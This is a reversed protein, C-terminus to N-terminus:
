FVIRSRLRVARESIVCAPIAGSWASLTIGPRHELQHYISAVTTGGSRNPECALQEILRLVTTKGCNEIPSIVAEIAEIQTQALKPV